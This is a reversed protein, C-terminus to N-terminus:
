YEHVRVANQNILCSFGIIKNDAYDMTNGVITVLVNNEDFTLIKHLDFVSVINGIDSNSRYKLVIDKGDAYSESIEDFTKDCAADSNATTGSFMVVFPESGGGVNDLAYSGDSQVVPVKGTDGEEPVPLVNNDSITAEGIKVEDKGVVIDTEDMNNEFSINLKNDKEYILM